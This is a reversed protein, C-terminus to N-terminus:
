SVVVRNFSYVTREQFGCSRYLSLAQENETQVEIRITAAGESQLRDLVQTLIQRGFGRRRHAPIVGLTTIYIVEGEECLGVTGVPEGDQRALYYRRHPELLRPAFQQSAEEEPDGFATARTQLFLDSDSTSVPHLELPELFPRAVVAFEGSWEMRYEAMRRRAGLARAFWPGSPSAEDCILFWREIGRQRCQEGVADVLNRGIGRRRYEPHVMGCAENGPDSALYGTLTGRSYHLFQGPDDDAQTAAMPLYLPLDLGEDENCADMLRSVEDLEDPALGQIRVLGDSSGRDM